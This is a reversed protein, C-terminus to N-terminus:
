SKVIIYIHLCAGTVTTERQLRGNLLDRLPLGKGQQELPTEQDYNSNIEETKSESLSQLPVASVYYNRTGAM